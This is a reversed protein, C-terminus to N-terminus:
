VPRVDLAKAQRLMSQCSSVSYQIGQEALAVRVDEATMDLHARIFSMAQAKGSKAKAGVSVRTNQSGEIYQLFFNDSDGSPSVKFSEARFDRQKVCTLLSHSTYANEYDDLTTGWCCTLFGGFDGSGRGSELTVGETRKATHHLLVLAHAGDRIFAHCQKGFLNMDKSSNEDGDFFRIATDIFLVANRAAECLRADGFSVPDANMSTYFFTDGVFPALGVNNIRQALSILGSEPCLYVVRKPRNVVPFRGFLPTGTLLAHIMNLTIISKRARAPGILGTVSQAQLFSDILFEPKPANETDHRSHFIGRWDGAFAGEQSQRTPKARHNGVIADPATKALEWKAANAAIRKVEDEHLPPLCRDANEQLLALELAADGLGAHRMRGALSTLANNRGETIPEGPKVEPRHPKLNRVFAPVPLTPADVAGWAEYLAGSPHVSGAAMVYGTGCRIDGSIGLDERKWPISRLDSGAFYFQLGYSDRRGTRVTYTGHPLGARDMVRLADASDHIGHDIDLVCLGSAGTAIGVNANPWRAWWERVKAEDLTAAKFGGKIAPEKSKPRCPFVHWGRAICSLAIELPTTM